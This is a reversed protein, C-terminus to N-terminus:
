RFTELYVSKAVTKSQDEVHALVEEPIGVSEGRVEIIKPGRGNTEQQKLTLIGRGTGLPFSAVTEGTIFKM